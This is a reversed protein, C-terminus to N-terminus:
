VGGRERQFGGVPDYPMTLRLLVRSEGPELAGRLNEQNCVGHVTTDNIVVVDGTTPKFTITGGYTNDADPLCLETGSWKSKSQLYVLVAIGEQTKNVRTRFNKMKGELEPAFTNPIAWMSDQHYNEWRNIRDDHVDNAVDETVSRYQVDFRILEGSVNRGKPVLGSVKALMFMESCMGMLKDAFDQHIATTTENYWMDERTGFRSSMVGVNTMGNTSVGLFGKIEKGEKLFAKGIEMIRAEDVDSRGMAPERVEFIIAENRTRDNKVAIAPAYSNDNTVIRGNDTRRLLLPPLVNMSQSSRITM